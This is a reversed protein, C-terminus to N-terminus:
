HWLPASRSHPWGSGRGRHGEDEWKQGQVGTGLQLCIQLELAKGGAHGAGRWPWPERRKQKELRMLSTRCGMENSCGGRPTLSLDWCPASPAGQALGTGYPVTCHCLFLGKTSAQLIRSSIIAPFSANGITGTSSPLQRVGQLQWARQGAMPSHRSTCHAPPHPTGPSSTHGTHGSSVPHPDWQGLSLLVAPVPSLRSQATSPNTTPM